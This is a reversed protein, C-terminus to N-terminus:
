AKNKRTEEMVLVVNGTKEGTLVYKYAEEIKTLPYTRDIVPQFVGEEMLRKVLALSNEIKSPIPFVALSFFKVRWGASQQITQLLFLYNLLQTCAQRPMCAHM